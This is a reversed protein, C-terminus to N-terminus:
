RWQFARISDTITGSRAAKADAGRELRMIQANTESVQADRRQKSEIVQQELVSLLARNTDRNSRLTAISAANIKNLVAIETNMAPDLSLSDDELAQVSRDVATANSRLMGITEMSHINSADALEASAYRSATRAQEDPALQSVGSGYPRLQISAGDYGGRADGARNVADLWGNLNGFRDYPLKLGYWNTGLVRYRNAMNVPVMKAMTIELELQAKLEEYNKVLEALMLIANAYSTPDFVIDGIGFIALAPVALSFLALLAVAIRKKM